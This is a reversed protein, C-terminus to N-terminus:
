LVTGSLYSNHVPRKGVKYLNKGVKGQGIVNEKKETKRSGLFGISKKLAEEYWTTSTLSSDDLVGDVVVVRSKSLPWIGPCSIWLHSPLLINGNRIKNSTVMISTTLPSLQCHHLCSWIRLVLVLICSWSWRPLLCLCKASKEELYSFAETSRWLLSTGLM